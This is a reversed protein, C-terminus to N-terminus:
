EKSFITSLPESKGKRSVSVGEKSKLEEPIDDINM